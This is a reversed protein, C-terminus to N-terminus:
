IKKSNEKIMEEVYIQFNPYTSKRELFRSVVFLPLIVKDRKKSYILSHPKISRDVGDLKSSYNYVSDFEYWCFDQKINRKIVEGIYAGIRVVFDDFHKNLLVTGMETNMLRKVYLDIYRISEITFDLNRKTLNEKDWNDESVDEYMLKAIGKLDDKVLKTKRLSGFGTIGLSCGLAVSFATIMYTQFNRKSNFKRHFSGFFVAFVYIFTEYNDRRFFM